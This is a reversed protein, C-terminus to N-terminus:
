AAAEQRINHLQKFEQSRVRYKAGDLSGTLPQFTSFVKCNVTRIVLQLWAEVKEEIFLLAPDGRATHMPCLASEPGGITLSIVISFWRGLFMLACLGVMGLLLNRSFSFVCPMLWFTM